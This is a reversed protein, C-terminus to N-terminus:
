TVGSYAVEIRELEVVPVEPPETTRDFEALMGFAEFDARVKELYRASVVASGDTRGIAYRRRAAARGVYAWVRGGLDADLHETVDHREYQRERRDLLGLLAPDVAFVVGNLHAGPDARVDLFTVHV